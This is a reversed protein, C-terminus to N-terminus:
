EDVERAQVDVVEAEHIRLLEEDSLQQMRDLVKAAPGSLEVKKVEPAYFGCIKAIEKWGMIEVAPDSIIKASDIADLIGQLVKERTLGLMHATKARESILAQTIKPLKELKNGEFNIDAYGAAAAADKKTMGYARADVYAAQKPTLDGVDSPALAQRAAPEPSLLSKKNPM